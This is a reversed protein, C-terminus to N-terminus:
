SDSTKRQIELVFDMSVGSDEAIEEVTLKGRKLARTVTEINKSDIAKEIKKQENKIALANASITMEYSLRQEPTFARKDLEQIAIQLWEENWFQPFQIPESVEHVTKM